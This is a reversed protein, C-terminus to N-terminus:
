GRNSEKEEEKEQSEEGGAVLEGVEEGAVCLRQDEWLRARSRCLLGHLASM